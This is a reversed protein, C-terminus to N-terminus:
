LHIAVGTSREIKFNAIESYDDYASERVNGRDKPLIV